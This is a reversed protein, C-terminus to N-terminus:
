YGTNVAKINLPDTEDQPTYPAGPPRPRTYSADQEAFSAYHGARERGPQAGQDYQASRGPRTYQERPDYAAPPQYPAPQGYGATHPCSGSPHQPVDQAPRQYPGSARGALDYGM